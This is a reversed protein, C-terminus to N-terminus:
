VAQHQNSNFAYGVLSRVIYMETEGIQVPLKIKLRVFNNSSGSSDITYDLGLSTIFKTASSEEKRSFNLRLIINKGVLRDLMVDHRSKANNVDEPWGFWTSSRESANGFISTIYDYVKKQSVSMFKDDLENVHNVGSLQTKLTSLEAKLKAVYDKLMENEEQLEKIMQSEEDIVLKQNDIQKKAKLSQFTMLLFGTALGGFAEASVNEIFSM